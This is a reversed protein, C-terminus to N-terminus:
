PESHGLKELKAVLPQFRCLDGRENLLKAAQRQYGSGQGNSYEALYLLTRIEGHRSPLARWNELAQELYRQAQEHESQEAYVIGLNDSVLAIGLRDEYREFTARAEQFRETAELYRGEIMHSIGLNMRAIALMAEDGIQRGYKLAQELCMVADYPSKSSAAMIDNALTGMNLHVLFLGHRDGTKQWLSLAQEYHYWAKDWCQERAYLIALHNHTHALGHDSQQKTFIALASQCLIEARWWHGREIYLYGLNSYIRARSYDDEGKRTYSILRQYALIADRLRGQRQLLKAYAIGLKWQIRDDSKGDAIDMAKSLIRGWSTWQGRREMYPSLAEILEFTEPLAAPTALGYEIAKLLGEREADVIEINEQNRRYWARWFVMNQRAAQVFGSEEHSDKGEDKRANWDGTRKLLFTEALRHISYRKQQLDGQVDILNMRALQRLSPLLQQAEIGAIAEIQEISADVVLPMVTFLQRASSTLSDWLDRYLFTYFEDIEMDPRNVFTDLIVPLSLSAIHAAVLKIALPNGGIHKYITELEAENAHKLEDSGYTDALYRFLHIAHWLSLPPLAIHEVGDYDPVRRRTTIVFKSPQVFEQMLPLLRVANEITEINDLVILTPSRRLEKRLVDHKQRLSLTQYQTLHLRAVLTDIVDDVSRVFDTIPVIGAGPVFEHTRATIWVLTPFQRTIEPHHIVFDVLTTKGMGGTGEVSVIWGSEESLLTAKLEESLREIGFLRSRPLRPSRVNQSRASLDDTQSRSKQKAKRRHAHYADAEQAVADWNRFRGHGYRSLVGNAHELLRQRSEPTDGYRDRALQLMGAIFGRPPSKKDGEFRSVLAHSFDFHGAINKQEVDLSERLERVLEAVTASRLLPLEKSSAM